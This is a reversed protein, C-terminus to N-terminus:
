PPPKADWLSRITAETINRLVAIFFSAKETNAIKAYIFNFCPQMKGVIERGAKKSGNFTSLKSCDKIRSFNKHAIELQMMFLTGLFALHDFLLNM